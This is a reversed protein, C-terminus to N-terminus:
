QGESDLVAIQLESNFYVKLGYIDLEIDHDVDYVRVLQEGDIVGSSVIGTLKAILENITM